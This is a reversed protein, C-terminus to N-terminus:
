SRRGDFRGSGVLIRSDDSTVSQKVHFATKWARPLEALENVANRGKPLLWLTDNRAMHRSQLILRPLPAFARACIVDANVLVDVVNVAYISTNKLGLADVCRELFDIRMARTEILAIHADLLIALVIGPLGAGSGLDAWIRNAARHDDAALLILQAGDVIHRWWVDPETSKAILNQRDNEALLLQAFRALRAIQEPSASLHERLWRKADAEQM